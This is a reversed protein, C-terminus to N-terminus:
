RALADVEAHAKGPERTRGRAIIEGAHVIVAGVAPNPRSFGKASRAEELAAAFFVRARAGDM